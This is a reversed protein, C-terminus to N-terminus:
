QSFPDVRGFPNQYKITPKLLKSDDLKQPKRSQTHSYDLDENLNFAIPQPDRVLGDLGIPRLQKKFAPNNWKM